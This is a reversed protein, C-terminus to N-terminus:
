PGDSLVREYIGLTELACRKWTFMKVRERGSRILSLRRPENEVLDELVTRMENVDAPDFQASADGVVEPISSRNSCAVPCDCHMAELPPIGFGEYMSPYVFVRAHRYLGLLIADTGSVQCLGDDSIGLERARAKERATLAGGGFCVIRQSERLRSSSATARLLGDFNKYGDRRGVYLLYPRGETAACAEPAKTTLTVGHYVVSTKAPDVRFLEILDRQTQRSVCIVHDARAVAAKKERHTPDTPAFSDPFREHIMDHVTLVVKVNKPALPSEAYYTEHILDPVLHKVLPWALLSNALHTIKVTKPIRPIPLGWVKLGDTSQKLYQNVYLPSVVHVDSDHDSTLARALEYIYRSVGGYEQWGFVQHDFVIRM